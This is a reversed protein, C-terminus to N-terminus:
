RHQLTKTRDCFECSRFHAIMIHLAEECGHHPVNVATVINSNCQRGLKHKINYRVTIDEIMLIHVEPLHHLWAHIGKAKDGQCTLRIVEKVASYLCGRKLIVGNMHSSSDATCTGIHDDTRTCQTFSTPEWHITNSLIPRQAHVHLLKAPAATINIYSISAM